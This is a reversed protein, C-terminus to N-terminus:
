PVEVSNVIKSIVDEATVNEAEAEYTLGIRHRLVDHIVARIDEPIVYGRRQIFAHCKAASALNISGRPSSGFGILPKLDSLNNKEPYRTAFILNLIYKEIKEDMYVEKVTEQAKLIDKIAVLSIRNDYTVIKCNENDKSHNYQCNPILNILGYKIHKIHTYHITTDKEIDNKAFLGDGHVPSKKVYINESIKAKAKTSLNVKFPESTEM